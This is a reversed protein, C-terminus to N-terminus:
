EPRPSAVGSYQISPSCCLGSRLRWLPFPRATGTRQGQDLVTRENLRAYALGSLPEYRKTQKNRGEPLIQESTRFILHWCVTGRRSFGISHERAPTSHDGRGASAPDNGFAARCKRQAAFAALNNSLRLSSGFPLLINAIFRSRAMAAHSSKTLRRGEQIRGITISGIWRWLSLYDPAMGERHNLRFTPHYLPYADHVYVLDLKAASAAPLLLIRPEDRSSIGVFGCVLHDPPM